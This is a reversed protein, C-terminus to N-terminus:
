RRRRRMDRSLDEAASEWVTQLSMYTTYQDAVVQADGQAGHKGQHVGKKLETKLEELKRMEEEAREKLRQLEDRPWEDAAAEVLAARAATQAALLDARQKAHVKLMRFATREDRRLAALEPHPAGEILRRASEEGDGLAVREMARATEAAADHTAVIFQFAAAEDAFIDDRQESDDTRAAREDAQRKTFRNIARFDVAEHAAIAQCELAEWLMVEKAIYEAIFFPPMSEEIEARRVVERMQLEALQRTVQRADTGGCCMDFPM